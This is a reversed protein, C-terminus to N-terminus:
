AKTKAKQNGSRNSVHVYIFYITYTCIYVYMYRDIYIPHDDMGSKAKNEDKMIERYSPIGYVYVYLIHYLIYVM